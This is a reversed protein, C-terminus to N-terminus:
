RFLAFNGSNAPTEAPTPASALNSFNPAPETSQVSIQSVESAKCTVPLHPAAHWSKLVDACRLAMTHAQHRLRAVVQQVEEPNSHRIHKYGPCGPGSLIQGNSASALARITRDSIGLDATITKATTWAEARRYLYAVLRDIEATSPNPVATFNLDLQTTM